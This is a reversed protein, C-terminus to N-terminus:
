GVRTGHFEYSTAPFRVTATEAVGQDDRAFTLEIPWERWRFETPSLAFLESKYLPFLEGNQEGVDTFLRDGERRVLLTEEEDALGHFLYDGALGDLTATDHALAKWQLQAPLRLEDLSLRETFHVADYADALALPQYNVNSREPRTQRLWTDVEPANKAQRLDLVFSSPGLRALAGQNSEASARDGPKLSQDSHGAIMVVDSGPIMGALFQGMTSFMVDTECSYCRQLHVNHAAFLIRADRPEREVIWQFQRAMNYDRVNSWARLPQGPCARVECLMTGIQQAMVASAFAWDFAEQSSAEVYAILESEFRAVLRTLGHILAQFAADDVADLNYRTVSLALPLLGARMTAAFDADVGDLYGCAAEVATAAHAWGQSGDMGYFRLKEAEPRGQNYDRMWLLMDQQHAWLGFTQNVNFFAADADDHRGAVFDHAVKAEVFGVELVFTTFGMEAVLFRFLRARFRNFERTYHHSEGHGVFRAEGIVEKLAMLDSFDDMAGDPNLPLAHERGWTEFAKDSPTM